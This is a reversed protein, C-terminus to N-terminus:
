RTRRQFLDTRVGEWPISSMPDARHDERRRELEVREDNSLQLPVPTESAISDWIDEVLQLRESLPLERFNLTSASMFFAYLVLQRHHLDPVM